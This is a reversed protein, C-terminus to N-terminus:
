IEQFIIYIALSHTLIRPNQTFYKVLYEINNINILILFYNNNSTIHILNLFTLILTYNRLIIMFDRFIQNFHLLVTIDDFFQMPKWFNYHFRQFSYSIRQIIKIDPIIIPCFKM